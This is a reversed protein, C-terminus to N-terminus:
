DNLAKVFGVENLIRSAVEFKQPRESVLSSFSLFDNELNPILTFSHIQRLNDVEVTEDVYQELSNQAVVASIWASSYAYWKSHDIISCHANFWFKSLTAEAYRREAYFSSNLCVLRTALIRCIFPCDFFNWIDDM